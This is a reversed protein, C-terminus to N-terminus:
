ATAPEFRLLNPVHGSAVRGEGQDGRMASPHENWMAHSM